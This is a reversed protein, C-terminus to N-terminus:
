DFNDLRELHRLHTNVAEPNDVSEYAARSVIGYANAMPTLVTDIFARGNVNRLVGERFERTLNGRAKSKVHIMRIHAFPGRFYERGLNEEIDEWVNTYAPRREREIGGIIEAKLIDTPSLNLGRDNM